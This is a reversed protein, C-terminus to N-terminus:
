VDLQRHKKEEKKQGDLSHFKTMAHATPNQNASRASESKQFTKMPCLFPFCLFISIKEKDGVKKQERVRKKLSNNLTKIIFL